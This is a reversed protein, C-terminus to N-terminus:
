RWDDLRTGGGEALEKKKKHRVCFAVATMIAIIVSCLLLPGIIVMIAWIPLDGTSEQLMPSSMPESSNTAPTAGPETTPSGQPIPTPPLTAPPAPTPPPTPPNTEMVIPMPTPPVTTSTMINPTPRPTPPMTPYPFTFIAEQSGRCPRFPLRLVNTQSGRAEILGNCMSGPDLALAQEESEITTNVQTVSAHSPLTAAGCEDLGSWLNNSFVSNRVADVNESCESDSCLWQAGGCLVLLNNDVILNTLTHGTAADLKLNPSTGKSNSVSNDSVRHAEDIDAGSRAELTIGAHMGNDTVQARESDVILVGAYRPIGFRAIGNQKLTGNIVKDFVIDYSRAAMTMTNSPDRDNFQNGVVRPRISEKVLLTVPASTLNTGFSNNDFM